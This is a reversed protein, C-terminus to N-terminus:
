RTSASNRKRCTACSTDLNRRKKSVDRDYVAYFRATTQPSTHGLMHQVLSIKGTANLMDSGAQRRLEYAASRRDPIFERVWGNFTRLMFRQRADFTKGAIIYDDAQMLQDIMWDPLSMVRGRKYGTKLTVDEEPREIIVIVKRGDERDEIWSKRCGACEAPTM